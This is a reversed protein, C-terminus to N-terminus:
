VDGTISYLKIEKKFIIFTPITVICNATSSERNVDVDVKIFQAKNKYSGALEEIIPYARQCPGCWSATFM